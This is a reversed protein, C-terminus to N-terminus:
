SWFSARYGFDSNYTVSCALENRLSLRSGIVLPFPVSCLGAWRIVVSVQRQTEHMVVVLRGSWMKACLKILKALGSRFSDHDVFVLSSLNLFSSWDREHSQLLVDQKHNNRETAIELYRSECDLNLYMCTVQEIYLQSTPKPKVPKSQDNVKFHCTSYSAHM